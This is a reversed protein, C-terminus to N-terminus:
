RNEPDYEKMIAKSQQTGIVEAREKLIFLRNVPGDRDFRANLIWTESKNKYKCKKLTVTGHSQHRCPPSYPVEYAAKGKGVEDSALWNWLSNLLNM